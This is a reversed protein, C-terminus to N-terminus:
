TPRRRDARPLGARDAGAGQHSPLDVQARPVDRPQRRAGGVEDLGERRRPVVPLRDQHRRRLRVVARSEGLPVVVRARVRGVTRAARGAAARGLPLPLPRARDLDRRLGVVHLRRVPVGRGPAAGGDGLRGGHGRDDGRRDAHRDGPEAGFRDLFGETVKFAGGYVGIDEGLMYVREDREMEEWLAEAIAILYTAQGDDTRKGRPEAGHGAAGSEITPDASARSATAMLRGGHRRRPRAREDLVRGRGVPGEDRRGARPVPLRARVRLGREFEAEVREAMEDVDDKTVVGESLLREEFNTVPDHDAM